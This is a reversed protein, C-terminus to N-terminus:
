VHRKLAAKSNANFHEISDLFQAVTVMSVQLASDVAAFLM